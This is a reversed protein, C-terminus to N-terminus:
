NNYKLIYKRWLRCTSILEIRKNLTALYPKSITFFKESICLNCQKTLNPYARAKALIEWMITFYKKKEKLQWLYKSLETDNKKNEHKFSM